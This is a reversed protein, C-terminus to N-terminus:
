CITDQGMARTIVLTACLIVFLMRNQGTGDKIAQRVRTKRGNIEVMHLWGDLFESSGINAHTLQAHCNACVVLINRPDDGLEADIHHVEFYPSGNRKAFAFSCIQCKGDYVYALLTRITATVPARVLRHSSARRSRTTGEIARIVKKLEDIALDKPKQKTLRALSNLADVATEDTDAGFLSLRADQELKTKAFLASTIRYRLGDDERRILITDGARIRAKEFWNSLGFLRNEKTSVDKPVYSKHQYNADEDFAIEITCKTTPFLSAYATPIAIFGKDMRSPTARLTIQWDAFM